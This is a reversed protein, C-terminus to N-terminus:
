SDVDVLVDLLFIAKNVRYNTCKISFHLPDFNDNLYLAQM